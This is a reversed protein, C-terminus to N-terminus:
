QELARAYHDEFFTTDLKEPIPKTVDIGTFRVWAQPRLHPRITVRHSKEPYLNAMRANM